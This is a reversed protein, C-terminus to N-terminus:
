QIVMKRYLVEKGNTVQCFYIGKVWTSVDLTLPSSAIAMKVEYVKQFNNNFIRLTVPSNGINIVSFNVSAYSPNPFILVEPQTHQIINTAISTDCPGSNIKGARFNPFQPITAVNYSTLELQHQVFNCNAGAKNPENIVHYHRCGNWTAMYIKDDPALTMAWFTTSIPDGYNDYEDILTICPDTSLCATDLQLLKRNNNVYIYHNDPSFACGQYYGGTDEKDFYVSANFSFVGSCRDFNYVHLVSSDRYCFAYKTGDPSFVSTGYNCQRVVPGVSQQNIQVIGEPTLLMVYFKDSNYKHIVIWWDRGNAHREAQLTSFMLTDYFLAEQKVMMKGHGENANMDVISYWLQFPALLTMDNSYGPSTHIIYYQNLHDPYPLTLVSQSFPSYPYFNNEFFEEDNFNKSSDIIEQYRNVIQEGNTYFQLTGATDCISNCGFFFEFNGPAFYGLSDAQGYYFDLGPMPEYGYQYGLMWVNDHTPHHTNPCDFIHISDQMFVTDSGNWNSIVLYATYVGPDDYLVVPNIQSSTDPFGGPFHWQYKQFIDNTVPKYFLYSHQCNATEVPTITAAPKSSVFLAVNNTMLSGIPTYISPFFGGLFYTSDNIRATTYARTSELDEWSNNIYRYMNNNSSTACLNGDLEFVNSFANDYYSPFNLSEWTNTLKYVEPQTTSMYLTGNVMAFSTINQTSGMSTWNTTYKATSSSGIIGAYGGAYLTGNIEKLAHVAGSLSTGPLVSWTTGNYRAIYSTTLGGIATFNGAAILYNNHVALCRVYENAGGAVENWKSGDWRAIFHTSDEDATVFDGGAYIEDEYKIISYVIGNLGSGMPHWENGDWRAVGFSMSDGASIFDGAVYLNNTADDFYSSIVNVNQWSDYYGITFWGGASPSNGDYECLSLCHKNNAYAFKGGIYAHNDLVDCALIEADIFNSEPFSAFTVLPASLTSNHLYRVAFEEQETIVYLSDNIVFAGRISMDSPSSFKIDLSIGDFTYIGEGTQLILTDNLYTVGAYGYGANIGCVSDFEMGNYRFLGCYYASSSIGTTVLYLSNDHVFLDTKTATSNIIGPTWESGDWIAAGNVISDGAKEFSGVVFLKNEYYALGSISGSPIGNGLSHWMNGDWRGINKVDPQDIATYYGGVFVDTGTFEVDNATGSIGSGMGHWGAVNRYAINRTTIGTASTFYGSVFLRHQDAKVMRVDGNIGMGNGMPLIQQAICCTSNISLILLLFYQNIFSKM